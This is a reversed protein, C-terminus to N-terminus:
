DGTRLILKGPNPVRKSNLQADIREQSNELPHYDRKEGEKGWRKLTESFISNKDQWNLAFPQEKRKHEARISM